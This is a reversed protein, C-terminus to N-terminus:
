DKNLLKNYKKDKLLQEFVKLPIEAKGNCEIKVKLNSGEKVNLEEILNKPIRFGYSNGIKILKTRLEKEKAM